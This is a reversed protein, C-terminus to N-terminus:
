SLEHPVYEFDIELADRSMILRRYTPCSEIGTLDARIYSSSCTCYRFLEISAREPVVFPRLAIPYHWGLLHSSARISFAAVHACPLVSVLASINM